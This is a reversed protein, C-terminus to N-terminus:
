RLKPSQSLWTQAEQTHRANQEMWKDMLEKQLQDHYADIFRQHPTNYILRDNMQRLQEMTLTNAAYSSGMWERPVGLTDQVDWERLKGSVAKAIEGIMNNVDDLSLHIAVEDDILHDIGCGACKAKIALAMVDRHMVLYRPLVMRKLQLDSAYCIPCACETFFALSGRLVNVEFDRLESQEQGAWYEIKDKLIPLATERAIGLWQKAYAAPISNVLHKLTAYVTKEDRGLAKASVDARVSICCNVCKVEYTRQMHTHKEAYQWRVATGCRPCIHDPGPRGVKEHSEVWNMAEGREVKRKQKNGGRTGLEEWWPVPKAPNYRSNM